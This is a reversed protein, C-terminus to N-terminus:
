KAAKVKLVKTKENEVIELGKDTRLHALHGKVRGVKVPIEKTSLAEAIAELTAGKFFMDDMIESQSNARHGYRSKEVPDKKKAAAKKKKEPPAEQGEWTENYFLTVSEPIKGIKEADETGAIDEIAKSFNQILEKKSCKAVKLKPDMLGSDNLAKIQKRLDGMSVAEVQADTVKM